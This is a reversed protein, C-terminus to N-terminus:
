TSLILNSDILLLQTRYNAKNQKMENMLNIKLGKKGVEMREISKHKTKREKRKDARKREELRM